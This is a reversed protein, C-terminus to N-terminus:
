AALHQQERYSTLRAVLAERREPSLPGRKRPETYRVKHQKFSGKLADHAEVGLIRRVLKLYVACYEWGHSAVSSGHQRLVVTHSIEHIVYWKTRTFKPMSIGISTAGGCRRGRGDSVEPSGWITAKPFTDGFWQHEWVAKTFKEIEGVTELRVNACQVDKFAAKEAAYVKSRQTDRAKM